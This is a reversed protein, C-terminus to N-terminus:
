LVLFARAPSVQGERILKCETNLALFFSNTLGRRASVRDAMEVYLKYKELV